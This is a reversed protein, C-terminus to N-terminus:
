LTAKINNSGLLAFAEARASANKDFIGRCITTITKAGPKKIGRATMCSHEGEVYVAVDESGTALSIIEAIDSAIREQLQLRHCVMEAIRAIKSLGIVKDKPKYIVNVTMNYMLAIHHECFSFVPIDRVVVYNGCRPVCMDDADFTKSYKEAIQSNTYAIGRFVEECMRAVREPTEALGEREPDEGLALLFERTLQKIKETDM